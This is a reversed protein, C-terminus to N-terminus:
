EVPIYRRGSSECEVKSALIIKEMLEKGVSSEDEYFYESVVASKCVAFAFKSPCNTETTSWINVKQYKSKRQDPDGICDSKRKEFSGTDTYLHYQKCKPMYEPNTPSPMLCSALVEHTKLDSPIAEISEEYETRLNTKTFIKGRSICEDELDSLSQRGSELYSEYYYLSGRGIVSAGSEDHCVGMLNEAPCEKKSNWLRGKPNLFGGCSRAWEEDTKADDEGFLIKESEDTFLTECIAVAEEDKKDKILCSGVMEANAASTQVLFSITFIVAVLANM